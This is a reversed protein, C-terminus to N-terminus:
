CARSSLLSPGPGARLTIACSAALVHHTHRLHSVMHTPHAIYRHLQLLLVAALDQLLDGGMLLKYISDWSRDTAWVGIVLGQLCALDLHVIM